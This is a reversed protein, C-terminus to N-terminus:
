NLDGVTKKDEPQMRVLRSLQQVLDEIQRQREFVCADAEARELVVDEAFAECSPAGCAGCDIGPLGSSIRARQKMKAIARSIDQDLPKLPRAGPRSSWQYWGKAYRRRVQEGEVVVGEPLTQTLRIARARAVYPNEVTLAGSVCGEPCAHCEIFAYGRLRGKEINDLIRIVNSLGAVSISREAPVFRPLGAVLAWWIGAASETEVPRVGCTQVSAVVGALLRFLDRISIVADLHSAEIGPHDVISVMKASCPTIYVAAIKEPALGTEEAKRMKAQRAAVERPSQIPLLQELLEPYVTQILRVVAPCFSSILPYPGRYESLYIETATRVEECADSLGVADDFGSKRLSELIVAPPAELDFQSYLSPSPIAIKYEFKSLGALSDTLPVV